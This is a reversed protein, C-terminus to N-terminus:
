SRKNQLVGGIQLGAKYLHEEDNGQIGAGRAGLGNEAKRGERGICRWTTYIRGRPHESVKMKKQISNSKSVFDEEDQRRQNQTSVRHQISNESSKIYRYTENQPHTPAATIEM